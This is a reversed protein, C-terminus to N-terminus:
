ALAERMRTLLSALTDRRSMPLATGIDELLEYFSPLIGVLFERGRETLSVALKRRDGDFNQREVHGERELGDILGTITARTVGAGCALESPTMRGEPADFLLALVTFRGESVVSRFFREELCRAMASATEMLDIAAQIATTDLSPFFSVLSQIADFKPAQDHDSM